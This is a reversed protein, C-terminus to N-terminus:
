KIQQTFIVKDLKGSYMDVFVKDGEIRLVNFGVINKYSTCNNLKGVYDKLFTKLANLDKKGLKPYHNEEFNKFYQEGSLTIKEPQATLDRPISFSSFQKISGEPMKWDFYTTAHIHATLVIVNNKALLARIKDGNKSYRGCIWNISRPSFKCPMVPIHTALFIHRADPKAKIALELAELSEKMSDFFIFLDKGVIKFCTQDKGPLPFIM